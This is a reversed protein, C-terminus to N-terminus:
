PERDQKTNSQLMYGKGRVTLLVHSETGVDRLKERLRAIHMDITRTSFGNPTLKWVNQLLEDRSLARGSH